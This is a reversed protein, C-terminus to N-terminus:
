IIENAEEGTLDIQLDRADWLRFYEPKNQWISEPPVMKPREGKKAINRWGASILREELVTKDFGSM